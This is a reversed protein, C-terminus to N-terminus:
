LDGGIVDKKGSGVILAMYESIAAWVSICCVIGDASFKDPLEDLADEFEKIQRNRIESDTILSLAYITILYPKPDNHAQLGSICSLFTERARTVVFELNTSSFSAIVDGSSPAPTINTNSM